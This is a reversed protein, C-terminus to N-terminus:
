ARLWSLTALSTDVALHTISHVADGKAHCETKEHTHTVSKPSDMNARGRGVKEVRCSYWLWPVVLVKCCQQWRSLGSRSIVLLSMM